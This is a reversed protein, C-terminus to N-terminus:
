FNLEFSRQINQKVKTFAARRDDDPECLESALLYDKPANLLWARILRGLFSAAENATMDNTVSRLKEEVRKTAPISFDKPHVASCKIEVPREAGKPIEWECFSVPKM